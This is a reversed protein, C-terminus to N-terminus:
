IWNRERNRHLEAEFRERSVTGATRHAAISWRLTGWVSSSYSCVARSAGVKIVSSESSVMQAVTPLCQVTLDQHPAM